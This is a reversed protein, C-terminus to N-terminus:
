LRRPSPTPPPSCRSKQRASALHPRAPHPSSESRPTRRARRDSPALPVLVQAPARLFSYLPPSPRCASREALSSPDCTCLRARRSHPAKCGFSWTEQTAKGWKKAFMTGAVRKDSRKFSHRNRSLNSDSFRSKDAAATEFRNFIFRHTALGDEAKASRGARATPPSACRAAAGRTDPPHESPM